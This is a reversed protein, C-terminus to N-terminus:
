KRKSKEGHIVNKHSKRPITTLESLFTEQDIKRTQNTRYIKEVATM